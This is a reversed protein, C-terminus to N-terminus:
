THREFFLHPKRCLEPCTMNRPCTMGKKKGGGQLEKELRIVGGAGKATYVDVGSTM